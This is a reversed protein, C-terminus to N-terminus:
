RWKLKLKGGSKRREKNTMREDNTRWKMMQGHPECRRKNTKQEDKRRKVEGKPPLWRFSPIHLPSTKNTKEKDAQTVWVTKEKDARAVRVTMGEDWKETVVSGRRPLPTPLPYKRWRKKIQGHSECRRKNTRQEEKRYAEGLNVM